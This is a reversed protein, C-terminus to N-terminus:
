RRECIFRLNQYKNYLKDVREIINKYKNWVDPLQRCVVDYSGSNLDNNMRELIVELIEEPTLLNDNYM